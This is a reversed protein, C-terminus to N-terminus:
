AEAKKYCGWRRLNTLNRLAKQIRSFTTDSGLTGTKPDQRTLSLQGLATGALLTEPICPLLLVGSGEGTSHHKPPAITSLDITSSLLHDMLSIGSQSVKPENSIEGQRPKRQQLMPVNITSKNYLHQWPYIFFHPHFEWSFEQRLALMQYRHYQQNHPHYHHHHHCHSYYQNPKKKFFPELPYIWWAKGSAGTCVGELNGERRPEKGLGPAIDGTAAQWAGVGGWYWALTSPVARHDLSMDLEERSLSPEPLLSSSTLGVKGMVRIISLVDPSSCTGGWDM